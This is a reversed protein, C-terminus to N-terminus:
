QRQWAYKYKGQCGQNQHVAVSKEGCERFTKCGGAKNHKQERKDAVNGALSSKPCAVEM